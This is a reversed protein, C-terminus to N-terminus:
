VPEEDEDGAYEDDQEENSRKDWANGQRGAEGRSAPMM